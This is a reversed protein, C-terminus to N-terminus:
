VELLSDGFATNNNDGPDKVAAAFKNYVIM